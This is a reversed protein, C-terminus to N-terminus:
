IEGIVGLNQMTGLLRVIIPLAVMIGVIVQMFNFPLEAIAAYQFIFFEYLFYGTIMGIGGLLMSFANWAAKPEYRLTVFLTLSGFFIALIFWAWSPLFLPIEWWPIEPGGILQLEGSFRYIGIIVMCTVLGLGLAAGLYKLHKSEFRDRFAFSLYGVIFGELGKIVLTGPAYLVYGTALDAIMSGIGGAVAGIIPGFLIATIYVGVEGFNFYGQTAPVSIQILITLVAVLSAMLATLSILLSKHMRPFVTLGKMILRVHKIFAMLVENTDQDAM